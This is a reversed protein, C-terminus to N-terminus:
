RTNELQPPPTLRGVGRKAYPRQQFSTRIPARVVRRRTADGPATMPTGAQVAPNVRAKDDAPELYGPPKPASGGMRAAQDKWKSDSRGGPDHNEGLDACCRRM